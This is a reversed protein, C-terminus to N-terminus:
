TKTKIFYSTKITGGDVSDVTKGFVARSMTRQFKWLSTYPFSSVITPHVDLKGKNIADFFEEKSVETYDNGNGSM